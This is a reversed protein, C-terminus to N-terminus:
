EKPLRRSLSELMKWLVVPIEDLPYDTVQLLRAPTVARAHLTPVRNPFLSEEGFWDGATLAEVESGDPRELHLEGEEVLYIARRPAPGATDGPNMELATAQAAIRNLQAFATREGVLRNRRLAAVREVRHCLTEVLGEKEVVFRFLALPMRLVVVPSLARLTAVSPADHILAYEGILAGTSLEHRIGDDARLYEVTGSIIMEAHQPQRGRRLLIAGANVEALPANLLTHLHHDPVEPLLSRLHHFAHRRRYDQQSTILAEETGFTASSGIEREGDTLPRGLHALVLRQSPDDYFDEARGHILGGGIDLKKLDAHRQYDALIREIFARSLPEATRAPDGMRELVPEATLDAWHAYSRYGDPGMAHFLFLNDEVPHPGYLPMVELGDCDNWEDFALDRVEFFREFLGEDFGTLAALKRSVSARVLPTAFYKLRHGARMLAALGAFHDDHAHTHFLGEVESLDIGLHLLIQDINPPADVLYCHGQFYLVSSMSPRHMDWGDGEGTHVVSFYAREVQHHQLPYPLEYGVGPPLTLDVEAQEGGLRFRFRNRGTREVSLGEGLDAPAGDEVVVTDLFEAPERIRGFAFALKVRMMERADEPPIGAARIEEEDLLGYNGRHIYALQRGVQERSGILLPKHGRNNPHGPIMMGQRYLMQLVPFEALNGLVGNQIALDSLLIANPGTETLTEGRREPLILGRKGLHKVVEAPCGCLIRLHPSELWYVGTTVQLLRLPHDSM